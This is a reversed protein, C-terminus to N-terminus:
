KGAKLKHPSGFDENIAIKVGRINSFLVGDEHEYFGETIKLITPRQNKRFECSGLDVPEKKWDYAMFEIFIKNM